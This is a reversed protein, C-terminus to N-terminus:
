FGTGGRISKIDRGLNSAFEEASSLLDNDDIISSARSFARNAASLYVGKAFSFSHGKCLLSINKIVDDSVNDDVTLKKIFDFMLTETPSDFPIRLDFRGPRCLVQSDIKEPNNATAILVSNKRQVVGDLANLVTSFSIPLNIGSDKMFFRDIDELLLVRIRPNKNEDESGSRRYRSIRLDDYEDEDYENSESGLVWKLFESDPDDYKATFSFSSPVTHFYDSISRIASTKGNGPPGYLLYSRSYPLDRKDFWSKSLSFFEVDRKLSATKDTWFVKSLSDTNYSEPTLRFNELINKVKEFDSKRCIWGIQSDYIPINTNKIKSVQPKKQILSDYGVEFVFSNSVDNNPELISKSIKSETDPTARISIAVVEDAGCGFVKRIMKEDSRLFNYVSESARFVFNVDDTADLVGSMIDTSYKTSESDETRDVSLEIDHM